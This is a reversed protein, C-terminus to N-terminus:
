DCHIYEIVIHAELATIADDGHQRWWQESTPETSYIDFPEDEILVNRVHKLLYKKLLRGDHCFMAPGGKSEVYNRLTVIRTKGPNSGADYTYSLVTGAAINM